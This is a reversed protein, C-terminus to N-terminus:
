KRRIKVIIMGILGFLSISTPEPIVEVVLRQIGEGEHSFGFLGETGSGVMSGDISLLSGGISFWGGASSNIDSVTTQNLDFNLIDTSTGNISIEFEGYSNGSCLDNYIISSVGNKNNLISVDTSVDFLGFTESEAISLYEYRRLQLTASTVTLSLSSLDFTFYNCTIDNESNIGTSYNDTINENSLTDSWWGQNNEGPTFQNDSTNFILTEAGATTAVLLLMAGVMCIIINQLRRM